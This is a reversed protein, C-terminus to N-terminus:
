SLPSSAQKLSFLVSPAECSENLAKTILLDLSHVTGTLFKESGQLLSLFIWVPYQKQLFFNERTVWILKRSFLDYM